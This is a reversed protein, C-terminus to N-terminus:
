KKFHEYMKEEVSHLKPACIVFSHLPSGMELDLFDGLPASVVKQDPYGIRALGFCPTSSDYADGELTKISELLQTVGEKITM